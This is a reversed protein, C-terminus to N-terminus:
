RSVVTEKANIESLMTRSVYGSDNHSYSGGLISQNKEDLNQITVELESIRNILKYNNTKLREMEESDGPPLDVAKDM